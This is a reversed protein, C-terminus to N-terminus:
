LSTFDLTEVVRLMAPGPDTDPDPAPPEAGRLGELLLPLGRMLGVTLREGEPVGSTLRLLLTLGVFAVGVVDVDVRCGCSLPETPTPTPTLTNARRELDCDGVDGVAAAAAAAAFRKCGTKTLRYTELSHEVEMSLNYANTKTKNTKVRRSIM